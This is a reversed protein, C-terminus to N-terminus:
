GGLLPELIEQLREIDVSIDGVLHFPDVYDPPVKGEGLLFFYDVDHYDCLKWYLPNIYGPCFIEIVKTGPSCFMVNALGAGHPAVIVEASHFLQIQEAVTLKELQVIRFDFEELLKMVQDENTVRRYSAEKRSVYLRRIGNSTRPVRELFLNRVFLSAQRPPVGTYCQMSPVILASAEIHTDATMEILQRERIGLMKLTESQYSNLFPPVAYKDIPIGSRRIFRYRSIVDILWYYYNSAAGSCLVAVTESTRTVPPL